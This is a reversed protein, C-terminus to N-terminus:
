VTSRYRNSHGIPVHFHRDMGITQGVPPGPYRDIYVKSLMDTACYATTSVARVRNNSAIGISLGRLRAITGRSLYRDEYSGDYQQGLLRNSLANDLTFFSRFPVRVRRELVSCAQAERRVCM